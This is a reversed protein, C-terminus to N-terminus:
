TPKETAYTVLLVHHKEKKRLKLHFQFCNSSLFVLSSECPFCVIFSWKSAFNFSFHSPNVFDAFSQIKLGTVSRSNASSKRLYWQKLAGTIIQVLLEKEKQSLGEFFVKSPSEYSHYSGVSLSQRLLLSAPPLFSVMQCFTKLWTEIRNRKINTEVCYLPHTDILFHTRSQVKFPM